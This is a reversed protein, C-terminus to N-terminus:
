RRLWDDPPTLFLGVQLVLGSSTIDVEDEPFNPRNRVETRPDLNYQLGGEVVSWIIPTWRHHWKGTFNIKPWKFDYIYRGEPRYVNMSYDMSSYEYGLLFINDANLNYRMNFETILIAEFGWKANFTKNWVAFPLLSTNRFGNKYYLGVAWSNNADIQKKYAVIGRWIRYQPNFNVFDDYDGNYSLSLVGSLSQDPKFTYHSYFSFRNGKLRLNDIVGLFSDDDFNNSLHIFTYDFSHGLLLKLKPKILLPLKYKFLFREESQVEGSIPSPFATQLEYPSSVSYEIAVGRMRTKVLEGEELEFVNEKMDDPLEPVRNNQAGVRMTWLLLLLTFGHYIGKM